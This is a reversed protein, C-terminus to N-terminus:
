DIIVGQKRYKKKKKKYDDFWKVLEKSANKRVYVGWDGGYQAWEDDSLLCYQDYLKDMEPYFKKPLASRGRNRIRKM